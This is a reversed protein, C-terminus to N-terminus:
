FNKSQDDEKLVKESYNFRESAVSNVAEFNYVVEVSEKQKSGDLQTKAVKSEEERFVLEEVVDKISSPFNKFKAVYEEGKVSMIDGDFFMDDLIESKDMEQYATVEFEEGTEKDVVQNQYKNKVGDEGM